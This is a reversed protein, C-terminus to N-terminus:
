WHERSSSAPWSWSAQWWHGPVAPFRPPAAPPPRCMIFRGARASGHHCAVFVLGKVSALWTITAVDGFGALLRDSLLIWATAVVAYGLAALGIFRHRAAYGQFQDQRSDATATKRGNTM